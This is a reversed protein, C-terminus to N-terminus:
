LLLNKWDIIGEKERTGIM